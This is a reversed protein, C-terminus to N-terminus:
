ETNQRVDLSAELARVVSLASDVCGDFNSHTFADGGCILPPQQQITMHGPCNPVSTQVQSYRWKQFKISIPQPLEPLLRHLEQLIIPQIVDKDNELHKLGFPVSTHVVLSPGLGPTDTNRKKNDVAIYRICSSDTVYRAGWPFSFVVDPSFFLGVAFRSSYRVAELQERQQVSLLDGLDGQLQLIQPVPMTLVVADFKESGGKREVEWSAGRRYLGTVHYELFVDAGSESLFHKVLSSMGLPTVYDKNGEKHQLGEIHCTLPQLLGASLLEAYFNSHSQAYAPTATIYQAGLDASHSVADPPRSTSMRGGTGRAKDWLVVQVRGQLARRLLCACLSGTLGAGVILVRSM